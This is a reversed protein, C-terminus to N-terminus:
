LPNSLITKRRRCRRGRKKSTTNTQSTKLWRQMEDLDLQKHREPPKIYNQGPSWVLRWSHPTPYNAVDVIKDVYSLVEQRALEYENIKFETYIISDCWIANWIRGSPTTIALVGTHQYNDDVPRLLQLIWM